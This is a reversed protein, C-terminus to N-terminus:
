VLGVDCSCFRSLVALHIVAVFALIISGITNKFIVVLPKKVVAVHIWTVAVFVLIISGISNEVIVVLPKKVVENLLVSM